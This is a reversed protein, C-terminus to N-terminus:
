KDEQKLSYVTNTPGSTPTMGMSIYREYKHMYYTNAVKYITFRAETWTGTSGDFWACETGHQRLQEVSIEDTSKEEFNLHAYKQCSNMQEIIRTVDKNLKEVQYKFPNM